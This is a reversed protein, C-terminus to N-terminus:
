VCAHPGYAVPFFSVSCPSTPLEEPIQDQGATGKLKIIGWAETNLDGFLSCLLQSTHSGQSFCVCRCLPKNVRLNRLSEWPRPKGMGLKDSFWLAQLTCKSLSHNFGAQLPGRGYDWGEHPLHLLVLTVTLMALELGSPAVHSGTLLSHPLPLFLIESPSSFLFPSSSPSSPLLPPSSSFFPPPFLLFLLPPHPSFNFPAVTNM